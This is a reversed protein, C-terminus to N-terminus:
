FSIYTERWEPAESGWLGRGGENRLDRLGSLEYIKWSISLVYHKLPNM